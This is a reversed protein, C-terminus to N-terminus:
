KSSTGAGSFTGSGYQSTWTGKLSLSKGSATMTGQWSTSFTTGSVTFSVTGTLNGNPDVEATVTTDAAGGSADKITGSFVGNADVAVTMTGSVPITNGGITLQGLWTGTGSGQYPFSVSTTVIPASASPPISTTKTPPTSTAVTAAVTTTAKAGAPTTKPSRSCGTAVVASLILLGIVLCSDFRMEHRKM